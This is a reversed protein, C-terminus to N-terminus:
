QLLSNWPACSIFIRNLSLLLTFCSVWTSLAPEAIAGPPNLGTCQTEKRVGFCVAVLTWDHLCLVTALFASLLWKRSDSLLFQDNSLHEAEHQPHPKQICDLCLPVIEIVPYPNLAPQHGIIVHTSFNHSVLFVLSSPQQRLFYVLFIYCEVPKCQSILVAVCLM